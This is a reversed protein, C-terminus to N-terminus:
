EPIPTTSAGAKSSGWARECRADFAARAAPIRSLLAEPLMACVKELVHPAIGQMAWAFGQAYMAAAEENPPPPFVTGDRLFPVLEAEEIALHEDLLTRLKRVVEAADGTNPLALFARDGQELLPDIKRHDAGLRELTAKVSPHKEALSPFVGSDESQHHGHLTAHFNKWEEQVAELRSLDGRGIRDLAAGFRILDRRFGHHSMMLATAISARGEDNLLNPPIM